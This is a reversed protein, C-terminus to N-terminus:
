SEGESTGFVPLRDAVKFTGDRADIANEGIGCCQIVDADDELEWRQVSANVVGDIADVLEVNEAHGCRERHQSQLLLSVYLAKELIWHYRSVQHGFRLLKLSHHIVESRFDLRHSQSPIRASAAVKFSTPMM